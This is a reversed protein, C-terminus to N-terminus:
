LEEFGCRPDPCTLRVSPEGLAMSARGHLASSCWPCPIEGSAARDLLEHEYPALDLRHDDDVPDPLSLQHADPDPLRTVALALEDDLAVEYLGFVAHTQESLALTALLLASAQDIRQQLQEVRVRNRYLSHAARAARPDPSPPREHELHSPAFQYRTLHRRNRSQRARGM